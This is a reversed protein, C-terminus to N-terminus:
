THTLLGLTRAMAVAQTRSRVGLKGYINSTHGKVTSLAIVLQRAIEQNTLGAAILALVELERQSLPEVIAHQPALTDSAPVHDLDEFCTLLWGAYRPLIGQEVATYLLAAMPKGADVFTRVFGEPEGFELAQALAQVATDTRGQAHLALAQLVWVEMVRRMRNRSFASAELPTLLALALSPEGLALHARALALQELEHFEADARGSGSATDTNAAHAKIWSRATIQDGEHTALWVDFAAVLRDDLDTVTSRRAIERAKGIAERAAETKGQAYRVAMLSIYGVVTGMEISRRTLAIGTELHEAAADLDNWEREVEGLGMYAKGATPIPCGQADVAIELVQRYLAAARHLKGQIMLLGALNALPSAAIAALEHAPAGADTTRPERVLPLLSEFTQAAADLHGRVMQALGLNSTALITLFSDAPSLLALASEANTIATLSDGQLLDMMTQFVRAAGAVRPEPDGVTAHALHTQVEDPGQGAFLLAAGHWVHLIPHEQRVTDPLAALWRLLVGTENRLIATEGYAAILQAARDSDQALLAHEIAAIPMAHSEYWRSAREHLKSILSPSQRKLRGQLLDRFLQHYRYWVREEDLPLLFLNATDLYALVDRATTGDVPMGTGASAGPASDRETRLLVINECLEACLPDLISTQLLFQQVYAQQQELVEAMLYDAIYRHTGALDDMLREPDQRDRLSLAALHLGAAWGETREQLSEIAQQSAITLGARHLLEATEATSFALDAARLETMEGRARLRALPLAPDLRTAIVLRTEPPLNDLLFALVADTSTLAATHYDDLVLFLRDAGPAHSGSDQLSEGIENICVALQQQVALPQPPGTQPTQGLHTAINCTRLAAGMYSMFRALDRESESLSIWAVQWGRDTLSRAWMSVLATKGYGAPASILVLRQGSRLSEDLRALLRPRTVWAERIPPIALKTKLIPSPQCDTNPM